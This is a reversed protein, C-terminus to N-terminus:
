GKPESVRGAFLVRGAKTDYVFFLFPHDAKFEAVPGLQMSTTTMVTGSAAAAETGQEDIAIWTKQFVQSIALREGGADGIGTFDAKQPSFASKIGLDALPAALSSGWKFAVKPMTVKVRGMQLSKTWADLSGDSWSEEIKGLAAADDPLVLLMALESGDYRLELAKAAGVQAFRYSGQHHMMPVNATTKGKFPEDRTEAPLFPSAWKGKFYIANTIVLKTNSKVAGEPLLDTIKQATQDAVWGNITRRAGDTAKAFDVQQATAGFAANTVASFEPSLSLAKDAWLRNAVVLESTGRANQWAADEGKAFAALQAVDTPYGLVTALEKATDGKAGLETIALAHRLSTGSMMLNGPTKRLKGFLRATFANAGKVDATLDITPGADKADNAPAPAEASPTTTAVSAGLPASSPAPPDPAPPPPSGGACAACGVLGLRGVFALLRRTRM